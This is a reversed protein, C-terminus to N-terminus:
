LARGVIRREQHVSPLILGSENDLKSWFRISLSPSELAPNLVDGRGLCCSEAREVLQKTEDVAHQSFDAVGLLRLWV